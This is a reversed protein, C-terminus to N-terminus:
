KDAHGGLKSMFVYAVNMCGPNILIMAHWMFIRDFNLGKPFGRPRMQTSVIFFSCSLLALNFPNITQEPVFNFSKLLIHVM